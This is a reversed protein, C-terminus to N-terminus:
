GAFHIGVLTKGDVIEGNRAMKKLEDLPITETELFEDADPHKRSRKLQTAVYLHMIEDSFGPTTFFTAKHELKGASYGTEEELERMACNEPLEGPELKGAPIELAIRNIPARFQNVLIVEGNDLIPVIAVAGPHEVIERRAQRGDPLEVVDVRLNITRGEFVLSSSISKEVLRAERSIARM